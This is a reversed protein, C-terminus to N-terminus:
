GATLYLLRRSASCGYQQLQLPVSFPFTYSTFSFLCSSSFSSFYFSNHSFFLPSYFHVVYAYSTHQGGYNTQPIGLICSRETASKAEMKLNQTKNCLYEFIDRFTFKIIKYMFNINISIQLTQYLRSCYFM